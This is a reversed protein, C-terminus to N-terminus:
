YHSPIYKGKAQKYPTRFISDKKTEEQKPEPDKGLAKAFLALREDDPLENLERRIVGPYKPNCGVNEWIQKNTYGEAILKIIQPRFNFKTKYAM